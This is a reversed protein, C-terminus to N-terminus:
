MPTARFTPMHYFGLADQVNSRNSFFRYLPIGAAIGYSLLGLVYNEKHMFYAGGGLGALITLARAGEYVFRGLTHSYFKWTLGPHLNMTRFFKKVGYLSNIYDNTTAWSGAARFINTYKAVLNANRVVRKESYLSKKQRLLYAALLPEPELGLTIKRARSIIEKAKEFKEEDYRTSTDAMRFALVSYFAGVVKSEAESLSGKDSLIDELRRYSNLAATFDQLGCHNKDFSFRQQVTSTKEDIDQLLTTIDHEM